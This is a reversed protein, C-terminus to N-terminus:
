KPMHCVAEVNNGDLDIVFAGYYDPHYEPRSGPEGNNKAGAGIAATYFADVSARDGCAFAVHIPGSSEGTQLWFDPKMDQGFGAGSTAHEILMQYALPALMATYLQKSAEYDSVRIAIHDIM